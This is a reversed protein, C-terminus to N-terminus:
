NGSDEPTEEKGAEETEPEAQGGAEDTEPPSISRRVLGMIGTMPIQNYQMRRGLEKATFRETWGMEDAYDNLMAALFMLVSRVPRDGSLADGITGGVEEQVDALVNMNCRLQYTKGGIEFPLEELRIDSM